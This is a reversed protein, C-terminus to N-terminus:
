GGEVGRLLGLLQRVLDLCFLGRACGIDLHLPQTPTAYALEPWREPVDMREQHTSRLPNVHQRIKRQGLSRGGQNGGPGVYRRPAEASCRLRHAGTSSSVASSAGLLRPVMPSVAWQGGWGCSASALLM